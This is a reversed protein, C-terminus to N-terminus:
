HGENVTELERQLYNYTPEIADSLDAGAETTFALESLFSLRSSIDESTLEYPEKTIISFGKFSNVVMARLLHPISGDNLVRRVFHEAAPTADMYELALGVLVFKEDLNGSLSEFFLRELAPIAKKGLTLIVTGLVPMRIQARTGQIWEDCHTAVWSPSESLLLMWAYDLDNPTADKGVAYNTCLELAKDVIEQNIGSTKSEKNSYSSAVYFLELGSQSQSVSSALIDLGQDSGEKLLLELLGSRLTPPFAFDAYRFLSNKSAWARFSLERDWPDAGQGSENSLQLFMKPFDFDHGTKLFEHIEHVVGLRALLDDYRQMVLHMKQRQNISSRVISEIQSILEDFTNESVSQAEQETKPITRLSMAANATELEHMRIRSEELSAIRAQLGRREAHWKHLSVSHVLAGVLFLVIAPVSPLRGIM